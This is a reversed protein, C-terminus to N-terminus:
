VRRYLIPQAAINNAAFNALVFSRFSPRFIRQRLNRVRRAVIHWDIANWALQGETEIAITQM